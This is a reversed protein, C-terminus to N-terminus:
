KLIMKCTENKEQLHDLAPVELLEEGHALLLPRGDPAAEVLVRLLEVLDSFSNKATCLDYSNGFWLHYLVSM